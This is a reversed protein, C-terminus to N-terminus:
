KYNKEILFSTGQTAPDLLLVEQGSQGHVPLAPREAVAPRAGGVAEAGAFEVELYPVWGLGTGRRWAKATQKGSLKTVAALVKKGTM